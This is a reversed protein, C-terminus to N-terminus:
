HSKLGRALTESPLEGFRERYRAAFMGLNTFCYDLAVATVTEFPTSNVLRNRSADLRQTMLWRMPSCGFRRSFQYQLARASLGSQHELETLSIPKDIRAIMYQCLRDLYSECLVGERQAQHTERPLFMMAALRYFMDDIGSMDLLHQSHMIQNILGGLHRYMDIFSLRGHSLALSQARQWDPKESVSGFMTNITNTLRETDVEILLVSRQSAVGGRAANPIFCASQGAWWEINEGEFYTNCQGTIPIMFSASAAGQVDASIASSASAIIKTGNINVAAARHRFAKPNGIPEYAVSWPMSKQIRDTM